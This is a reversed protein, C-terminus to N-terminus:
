TRPTAVAHGPHESIWAGALLGSAATLAAAAIVTANLGFSDALVGAVLAGAAYGIDRWFRDTGLANARWSPHAPDSVLAILAPHVMAIRDALHGTPIQGIGWLVPYLGKIM